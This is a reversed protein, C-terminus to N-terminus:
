QVRISFTHNDSFNIVTWAIPCLLVARYPLFYVSGTRKLYRGSLNSFNGRQSVTTWHPSKTSKQQRTAKDHDILMLAHKGLNDYLKRRETSILMMSDTGTWKCHVRSGAFISTWLILLTELSVVASHLKCPVTITRSITIDQCIWANMQQWESGSYRISNVSLCLASGCWIFYLTSTVGRCGPHVHSAVFSFIGGGMLTRAVPWSMISLGAMFIGSFWALCSFCTGFSTCTIEMVLVIRWGPATTILSPLVDIVFQAINPDSQNRLLVLPVFGIPTLHM